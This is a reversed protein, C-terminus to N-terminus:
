VTLRLEGISRWAAWSPCSIPPRRSSSRRWPVASEGGAGFRDSTSRVDSRLSSVYGRLRGRGRHTAQAAARLQRVELRLRQSTAWAALACVARLCRKPSPLINPRRRDAAATVRRAKPAHPDTRGAPDLQDRDRGDARRHDRPRTRPVRLRRRRALRGHRARDPRDRRRQAPGGGRLTTAAPRRSARRRQRLGGLLRPHARVGRGARASSARALAPAARARAAPVRDAAPLRLLFGEGDGPPWASRSRVGVTEDVATAAAACAQRRAGLVAGPDPISSHM